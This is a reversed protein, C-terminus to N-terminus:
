KVELGEDELSHTPKQKLVDATRVCGSGDVNGDKDCEVKLKSRWDELRLRPNMMVAMKLCAVNEDLQSTQEEDDVALEIMVKATVNQVKMMPEMRETTSKVNLEDNSDAEVEDDARRNASRSEGSRHRHRWSSTGGVGVMM